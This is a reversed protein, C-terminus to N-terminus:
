KSARRRRQEKPDLILERLLELRDGDQLRYDDEVLEGFVGLSISQADLEPFYREMGCSIAAQRATPSEAASKELVVQREALAFVVSYSIPNKDQQKGSGSTM